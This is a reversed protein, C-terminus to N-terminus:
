EMIFVWLPYGAIKSNLYAKIYSPNCYIIAPAIASATKLFELYVDTMDGSCQWKSYKM